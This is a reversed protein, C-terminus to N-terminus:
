APKETGPWSALAEARGADRGPLWATRLIAYMFLFDSHSFGDSYDGPIGCSEFAERRAACVFAQTCILGCPQAPQPAPTSNHM